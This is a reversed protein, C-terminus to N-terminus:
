ECLHKLNNNVYEKGIDNRLGNIKNGSLNEVLDKFVNFIEFVEYKQKLFYM